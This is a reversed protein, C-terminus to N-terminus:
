NEKLPSVASQYNRLQRLTIRNNIKLLQKWLQISITVNFHM